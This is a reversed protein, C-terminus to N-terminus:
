GLRHQTGSTSQFRRPEAPVDYVGEDFESEEQLQFILARAIKDQLDDPLQRLCGLAEDLLQTM